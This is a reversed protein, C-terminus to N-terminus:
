GIHHQGRRDECSEGKRPRDLADKIAKRIWDLRPEKEARSADIQELMTTSLTLGVREYFRKKRGM